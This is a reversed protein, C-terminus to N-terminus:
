LNGGRYYNRFSIIDKRKVGGDSNFRELSMFRLKKELM